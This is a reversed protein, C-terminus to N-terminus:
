PFDWPFVVTIVVSVYYDLFLFSLLECLSQLKNTLGNNKNKKIKRKIDQLDKSNYYTLAWQCSLSLLSFLVIALM